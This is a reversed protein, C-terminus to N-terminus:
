EVSAGETIVLNLPIDYPESPIKDVYGKKYSLGIKLAQPQNALFRDYWGGGWGLRNGSRDFALTPVIILDFEQNPYDLESSKGQITIAIDPYKNKVFNIIPQTNVENLSKIPSYIHMSSIDDWDVDDILKAVIKKSATSVESALM